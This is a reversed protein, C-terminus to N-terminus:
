SFMAFIKIFYVNDFDRFMGYKLPLICALQWINVYLINERESTPSTRAYYRFWVIQKLLSCM